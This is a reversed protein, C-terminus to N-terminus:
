VPQIIGKKAIYTQLRAKLVPVTGQKSLGLKTLEKELAERSRLKKLNLKVNNEPLLHYSINTSNEMYFIVGESYHIEKAKIDKKLLDIKSVPNHLQAIYLNSLKSDRNLTLFIIHGLPWTKIDIPNAYTCVLKTRRQLNSLSLFLPIASMGLM